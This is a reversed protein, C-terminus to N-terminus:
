PSVGLGSSLEQAPRGAPDRNSANAGTPTWAAEGVPRQRDCSMGYVQGIGAVRATQWAATQGSAADGNFGRGAAPAWGLTGPIDSASPALTRMPSCIM